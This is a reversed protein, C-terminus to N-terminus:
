DRGSAFMQKIKKRLALLAIGGAVEIIGSLHFASDFGLREGVVGALNAFMFYSATNVTLAFAFAGGSRRRPFIMSAVVLVLLNVISDGATHLVRFILFDMAGAASGSAAMFVGSLVLAFGMMFLPRERQDHMRGTFATIIAMWLALVMFLRGVTEPSLGIVETQLLTYGAHEFGAHSAAVFLIAVLIWTRGRRLDRGYELIPFAIGRTRPLYLAMLAWLCAFVSSLVFIVGPWSLGKILEGCGFGGVGAGLIGGINFVSVQFGRRKEAVQKFFISFLSIWSLTFGAGMIFTGTALVFYDSSTPMFYCALLVLGSGALMLLHPPLRDSLVGLPFVLVLTAFSYLSVLNGIGSGSVGQGQFFLPLFLMCMWQFAVVFFQALAYPLAKQFLRAGEKFETHAPNEM